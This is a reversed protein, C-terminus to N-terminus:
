HQFFPLYQNLIQAPEFAHSKLSSSALPKLSFQVVSFTKEYSFEM